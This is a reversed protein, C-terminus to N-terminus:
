YAIVLIKKDTTMTTVLRCAALNCRFRYFYYFIYNILINKNYTTENQM